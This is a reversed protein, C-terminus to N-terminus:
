SKKKNMRKDRNRDTKIKKNPYTVKQKRLNSEVIASQMGM